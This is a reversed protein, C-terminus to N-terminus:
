FIVFAGIRTFSYHLAINISIEFKFDSNPTFYHGDGHRLFSCRGIKTFGTVKQGNIEITGENQEYQEIQVDGSHFQDTLLNRRM